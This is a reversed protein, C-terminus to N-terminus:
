RESLKHQILKIRVKAITIHVTVPECSIHVICSIIPLRIVCLKAHSNLAVHIWQNTPTIDGTFYEDKLSRRIM